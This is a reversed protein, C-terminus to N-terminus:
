CYGSKHQRINVSSNWIYRLFKTKWVIKQYKFLGVMKNFLSFLSTNKKNLPFICISFHKQCKWDDHMIKKNQCKFQIFQFFSFSFFSCLYTFSFGKWHSVLPERIANEETKAPGLRRWLSLPYAWLELRKSRGLQWRGRKSEIRSKWVQRWGRWEGVSGRVDGDRERVLLGLPPIWVQVLELEM